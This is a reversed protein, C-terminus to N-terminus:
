PFLILSQETSIMPDNGNGPNANPEVSSLCRSRTTRDDSNKAANAILHHLSYGPVRYRNIADVVIIIIMRIREHVRTHIRILIRIRSKHRIRRIIRLVLHRRQIFFLIVSFHLLVVFSLRRVAFFFAAPISSRVHRNQVIHILEAVVRM